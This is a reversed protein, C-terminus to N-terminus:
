TCCKDQCKKLVERLNPHLDCELMKDFDVWSFEGHEDANIKIESFEPIVESYFIHEIFNGHENDFKFKHVYRINHLKVGAEEFVERHV